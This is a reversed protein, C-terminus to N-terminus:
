DCYEGLPRPVVVPLIEMEVDPAEIRKQHWKVPHLLLAAVVIHLCTAALLMVCGRVGYDYIWMSILYPFFIPGLGTLTM